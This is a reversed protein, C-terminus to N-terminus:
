SKAAQRVRWLFYMEEERISATTDAREMASKLFDAAVKGMGLLKAAAILDAPIFGSYIGFSIAPGLRVRM